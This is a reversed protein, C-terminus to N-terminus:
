APPGTGPRLLQPGLRRLAQRLLARVSVVPVELERAAEDCTRGAFYASVLVRRELEDLAAVADRMGPVDGFPQRGEPSREDPPPVSGDRDRLYGVAGRHVRSLLWAEATGDTTGFHPADRWADVLFRRTLTLATQRDGVLVRVLGYVHAGLLDVVRGFAAVDGAAAALMAQTAATRRTPSRTM